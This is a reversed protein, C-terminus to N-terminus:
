KSLRLARDPFYISLVYLCNFIRRQQSRHEQLPDPSTKGRRRRKHYSNLFTYFKYFTALHRIHTLTLALCGIYDLSSSPKSLSECHPQGLLSLFMFLIFAIAVTSSMHCAQLSFFFQSAVTVPFGVM